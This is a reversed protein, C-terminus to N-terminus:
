KSLKLWSGVQIEFDEPKFKKFGSEPFFTLEGFYIKNEVIFFDVRVHPFDKSLKRSLEIMESLKVPKKILKENFKPYLFEADLLNWELDYINRKHGKFRDIDVQIFKPEGHFCFIKYDKPPEGDEEALYKECIIRPKIDKYNWERGFWYYNTKLWRKMKKLEVAWNMKNKDRCIINWGSGHTAKLVFSDPLKNLDIEEVSDYVGYLENLYQEGIREKVFERVEYKDTCKTAIPDYWNLKLWQLKETYTIPNELNLRQGTSIKYRLKIVREDDIFSLLKFIINKLPELNKLNM